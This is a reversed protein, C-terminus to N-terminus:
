EEDFVDDSNSNEQLEVVQDNHVVSSGRVWVFGKGSKKWGGKVCKERSMIQRDQSLHGSFYVFFSNLINRNQM